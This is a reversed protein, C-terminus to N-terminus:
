RKKVEDIIHLIQPLVARKGDAFIVFDAMELRKEDSWQKNIRQRVLKEEINDRKIVRRIRVDVPATVVIVKDAISRFTPTELFIASEYVIMDVGRREQEDRWEYFDELLRPHVIQNVKMLLEKNSFIIGAMVSKQLVGDVVIKDGLVEVLRNLLSKDIKYLEKARDDAIYAPIGLASFIRVVYSKGTGIGGTCAFCFM